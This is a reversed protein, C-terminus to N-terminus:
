SLSPSSPSNDSIMSSAQLEKDKRFVLIRPHITKEDLEIPVTPRCEILSASKFIQYELRSETRKYKCNERPWYDQLDAFILYGDKAIIKLGRYIYYELWNAPRSFRIDSINLDSDSIESFPPLGILCDPFGIIRKNTNDPMAEIDREHISTFSKHLVNIGPFTIKLIKALYPNDEAVYILMNHIDIVNLFDSFNPVIPMIRMSLQHNYEMAVDWLEASLFQQGLKVLNYNGGYREALNQEKEFDYYGELIHRDHLHSFASIKKSDLIREIEKLKKKEKFIKAHAEYDLTGMLKQDDQNEVDPLSYKFVKTKVTFEDHHFKMHKSKPFPIRFAKGDDDLYHFSSNNVNTITIIKRVAKNQDYHLFLRIGLHDKAWKKFQSINRPTEM